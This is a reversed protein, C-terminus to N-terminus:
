ALRGGPIVHPGAARNMQRRGPVYVHGGHQPYGGFARALPSKYSRSCTIERRDRMTNGSVAAKGQDVRAGKPDSVEVSSFAPELSQTFWLTVEHPSTKVRAASWRAPMISSRTAGRRPPASAVLLLSVLAIRTQM